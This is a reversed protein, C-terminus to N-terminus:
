GPLQAEEAEPAGLDVEVAMGGNGLAANAARHLAEGLQVGCCCQMRFSPSSLPDCNGESCFWLMESHEWSLGERDGPVASCM